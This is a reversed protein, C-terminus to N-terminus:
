FNIYYSTYVTKSINFLLLDMCTIKRNELNLYSQCINTESACCLSDFGAYMTFHDDYFTQDVYMGM